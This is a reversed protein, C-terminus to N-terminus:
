LVEMLEFQPIVHSNCHSLIRWANQIKTSDSCFCLSLFKYWLLQYIECCFCCFKTTALSCQIFYFCLFHTILEDSDLINPCVVNLLLCCETVSVKIVVIIEKVAIRTHFELACKPSAIVRAM